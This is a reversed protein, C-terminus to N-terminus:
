SPLGNVYRTLKSKQNAATNKHVIGKQALRDLLAIAKNLNEQAVTKSEAEKVQRILSKVQSRYTRNALRSEESTKMRKKCSKHHPM